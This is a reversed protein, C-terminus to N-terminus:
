NKIVDNYKKKYKLYKKYSNNFLIKPDQSGGTQSGNKDFSVEGYLAESDTVKSLWGNIEEDSPKQLLKKLLALSTRPGLYDETKSNYSIRLTPFGDIRAKEIEQPDKETEFEKIVLKIKYKDFIEQKSKNYAKKFEFWAPKFTQCHSCFDGYYLTVYKVVIDNNTM